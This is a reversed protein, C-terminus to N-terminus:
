RLSQPVDFEACVARWVTKADVGDALAQDVTREAWPPWSMIRPWAARTRIVSSRGCGRGSSASGCPGGQHSGWSGGTWGAPSLVPARPAVGVPVGRPVASGREYCVILFACLEAPSPDGPTGRLPMLSSGYNGPRMWDPVAQGGGRAPVSERRPSCISGDASSRPPGGVARACSGAAGCCATGCCAALGWAALGWAALGWAVGCGTITGCCRPGAAALGTGAGAPGAGAGAPWGGAVRGGAGRRGVSPTATAARIEPMTGAM